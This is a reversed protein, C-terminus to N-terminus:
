AALRPPAALKSLPFHRAIKRLLRGEERKMKHRNPARLDDYGRLHLIGHIVYRVVESQWSTRFRKAQAVADDLCVFIEGNVVKRNECYAFTIVDTSGAHGLFKQNLRIMEPAAVLHIGLEYNQVALEGELLSRILRRLMAHDLRRVRQRNRLILESM